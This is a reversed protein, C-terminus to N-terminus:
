NASPQVAPTWGPPLQRRALEQAVQYVALVFTQQAPSFMQLIAVPCPIFAGPEQAATAPALSAPDFRARFRDPSM